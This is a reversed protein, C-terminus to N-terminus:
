TPSHLGPPYRRRRHVPHPSLSWEDAARRFRAARSASKVLAPGALVRLDDVVPLEDRDIGVAATPRKRRGM